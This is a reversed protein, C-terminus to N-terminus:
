MCKSGPPPSPKGYRAKILQMRGEGPLLVFLNDFVNGCVKPLGEVAFAGILDGIFESHSVILVSKGKLMGMEARISQIDAPSAGTFRVEKPTIKRALALPKATEITRRRQSTLIADVRMNQLSRVLDAARKEGDKTLPPDGAPTTGKEAHRVIIIAAPLESATAPQALAQGGDLVAALALILGIQLVISPM